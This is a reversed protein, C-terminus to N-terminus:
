AFHNSTYNLKTLDIERWYNQAYVIGDRLQRHYRRDDTQYTINLTRQVTWHVFWKETLHKQRQRGWCQATDQCKIVPVFFLFRTEIFPRARERGRRSLTPSTKLRKIEVTQRKGIEKDKRRYHVERPGSNSRTPDLKVMPHTANARDTNNAVQVGRDKVWGSMYSLWPHKYFPFSVTITRSLIIDIATTEFSDFQDLIM